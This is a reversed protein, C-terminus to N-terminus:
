LTCYCGLQLQFHNDACNASQIHQLRSGMDRIGKISPLTPPELQRETMQLQRKYIIFSPLRVDCGAFM